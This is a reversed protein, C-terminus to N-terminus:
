NTKKLHNILFAQLLVERDIAETIAEDSLQTKAYKRNRRGQYHVMTKIHQRIGTNIIYRGCNCQIYDSHQRKQEETLRQSQINTTRIYRHYYTNNDLITKMEILRNININMEKFMDAFKLYIGEQPDLDEIMAFMEVMLNHLEIKPTTM